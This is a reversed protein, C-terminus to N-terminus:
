SLMKKDAGSYNRYKIIKAPNGGVVAFPPVDKSVVSGAGIISGSGITVGPLITVRSSIWVDDEIVVSKPATVGQKCMPIDLDKTEHNTTFILVEPGMMVNEGIVAPGQIFCNTGIGSNYGVKVNPSFSANKHINVHNTPNNTISKFLFARIKKCINGVLRVESDPLRKAIINYILQMVIRKM